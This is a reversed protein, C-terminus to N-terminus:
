TVLFVSTVDFPMITIITVVLKLCINLILIIKHKINIYAVM